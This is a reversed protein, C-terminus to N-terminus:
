AQSLQLQKTFAALQLTTPPEAGTQTCTYAAATAARQAIVQWLEESLNTSDHQKLHNQISALFTGMVTDGAGITDVVQIQPARHTSTSGSVTLQLGAAGDTVVKIPATPNGLFDNEASSLKLLSVYPLLALLRDRHAATETFSRLNPDVAVFVGQKALTQALALYRTAAPELALSLTGFYAIRCPVLPPTAYRDATNEFYFSYNASGDNDLHTVALTTPQPGRQVLSTDIKEAQLREFLQLGFPDTSLRSVFRLQAGQRAATVAVNFPGGGPRAVFGSPAPVLDILAEGCVIM